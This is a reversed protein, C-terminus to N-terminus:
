LNSGDCEQLNCSTRTTVMLVRTNFKLPKWLDNEPGYTSQSYFRINKDNQVPCTGGGDSEVSVATSEVLGVPALTDFLNSGIRWPNSDSRLDTSLAPHYINARWLVLLSCPLSRVNLKVLKWNLFHCYGNGPMSLANGTVLRNHAMVSRHVPGLLFPQHVRDAGKRDTSPCRAIESWRNRAPM